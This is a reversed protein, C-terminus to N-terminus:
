ALLKLLDNIISLSDNFVAGAADPFVFNEQQIRPLYRPYLNLNPFFAVVLVPTQNWILRGQWVLFHIQVPVM